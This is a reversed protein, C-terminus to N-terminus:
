SKGATKKLAEKFEEQQEPDVEPYFGKSRQYSLGLEKLINYVQAKKYSVGFEKEIFDIVLPGTWTETNYGFSTPSGNLIVDLLKEKQDVLLRSKRGRGPKDILGDLGEDEFRHVWNTIQKFSTHYLEELKRSSLGLSVQYVAHLRWGVTYKDEKKILAKIQESTYGKVKLVSRGM